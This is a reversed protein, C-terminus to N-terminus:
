QEICESRLFSRYNDIEDVWYEGEFPWLQWDDAVVFLTTGAPAAGAAYDSNLLARKTEAARAADIEFDIEDAKISWETLDQDARTLIQQVQIGAELLQNKRAGEVRELVTQGFEGLREMNARLKKDEHTLNKIVRHSDYFSIDALVAQVFPMPLTTTGGEYATVV